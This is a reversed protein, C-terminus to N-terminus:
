EGCQKRWEAVKRQGAEANNGGDFILYNFYQKALKDEVWERSAPHLRINNRNKLYWEWTNPFGLARGAGRWDALMEKLHRMPIEIPVIDGDDELLVWYQWHHKNRKEHSNWARNFAETPEYQAEGNPKRFTKAYSFLELPTLKTWDHLVLQWIPVGIKIGEVLVFWKHKLVYQLYKIYRRM